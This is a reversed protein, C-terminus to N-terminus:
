IQENFKIAPTNRALETGNSYHAGHKNYGRTEQVQERVLDALRTIIEANIRQAKFLALQYEQMALDYDAAINRLRTKQEESVLQMLSPNLALLERQKEMEYAIEQKRLLLPKIEGVNMTKLIVTEQRLIGALEETLSGMYNVDFNEM